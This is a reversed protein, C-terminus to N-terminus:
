HGSNVSAADSALPNSRPRDGATLLAETKDHVFDPSGVVLTAGNVLFLIGVVGLVGSVGLLLRGGAVLSASALVIAIQLLAMSYDYYPHQALAYQRENQFHEAEALLEKRSHKGTEIHDREDEYSKIDNDIMARADPPLSANNAAEAKKLKLQDLALSLTTLRLNKAQYYNYTDVYGFGAQQAVKMADNSGTAAVAILVALVSIYVAIWRNGKREAVEDLSDAPTGSVVGVKRSMPPTEALQAERALHRETESARRPAPAPRAAPRKFRQKKM